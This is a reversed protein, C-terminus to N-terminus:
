RHSRGTARQRVEKLRAERAADTVEDLPLTVINENLGLVQLSTPPQWQDSFLSLTSARHDYDIGTMDVITEFLNHLQAASNAHARLRTLVSPDSKRYDSSLWVLFPIEIEPRAVEPFGHGFDEDSLGSDFLREGHDSFYILGSKCRCRTLSDIAERLNRDTFLISNDYDDVLQMQREPLTRPHAHADPFIAFNQPFRQRYSFHSGEMHLFIVAKADDPLRALTDDLRTILNSDFRDAGGAPSADGPFSVHDAELAIQTIPSSDLAPREQNSIWYTSFGAQKLLTVISKESREPDRATPAARTLALPLSLITNTANSTV